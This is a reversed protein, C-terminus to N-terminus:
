SDEKRLLRCHGHGVYRSLQRVNQADATKKVYDDVTVMVSMVLCSDLLKLM